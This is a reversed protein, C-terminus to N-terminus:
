YKKYYRTKELLLVKLVMLLIFTLLYHNLVLVLVVVIVSNSVTPAVALLHTNRMGTGRCWLPEGYELALDM